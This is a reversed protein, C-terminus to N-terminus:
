GISTPPLSVIGVTRRTTPSVDPTGAHHMFLDRVPAMGRVNGMERAGRDTVVALSALGFVIGMVDVGRECCDDPQSWWEYALVWLVCTGTPSRKAFSM